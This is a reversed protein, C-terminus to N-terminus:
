LKYYTYTYSWSATQGPQIVLGIYPEVALVSRISWMSLHALPKDATVHVGTGADRNEIRL